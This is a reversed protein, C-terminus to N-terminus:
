VDLTALTQENWAVVPAALADELLFARWPTTRLATARTATLLTRVDHARHPGAPAACLANSGHLGMQPQARIPSPAHTQWDQPLDVEALHPAMRRATTGGTDLFWHMLTALEQSADGVSVPRGFAAGDARLILPVGAGTEFRFDASADALACPGSADIGVGMKAPLEPFNPAAAVLADHVQTTVDGDTWFPTSLMVRRHEADVNADLLNLESLGALLRPHSDESVGRLQLNARITFEIGGNGFTEALDCLGHMQAATLRGLFPRVRVLLGDEAPMARYATPCWGYPEAKRTLGSM